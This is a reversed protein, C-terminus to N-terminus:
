DHVKVTSHKEVLYTYLAEVDENYVAIADAAQAEIEIPDDGVADPAPIDVIEEGKIKNKSM